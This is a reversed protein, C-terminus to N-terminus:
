HWSNRIEDKRIRQLWKKKHIVQLIKKVESSGFNKRFKAIIANAYDQAGRLDVFDGAYNRNSKGCCAHRCIL